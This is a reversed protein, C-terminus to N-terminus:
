GKKKICKKNDILLDVFSIFQTETDINGNALGNQLVKEGSYVGSEFVDESVDPRESKVHEVFADYAEIVHEELDKKDEKSLARFPSFQTKKKGVGVETVEFGANEIAKAWSVHIIKAGVSGVLASPSCYITDACCALAYAASCAMSDTYAYIPKGISKIQRCTEMLQSVSGGPSDIILSVAKVSAETRAQEALYGIMRYADPYLVGRIDILMSRSSMDVDSLQAEDRTLDCQHGDAIFYLNKTM